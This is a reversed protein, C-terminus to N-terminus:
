SHSTNRWNTYIAKPYSILLEERAIEGTFPFHKKLKEFKKALKAVTELDGTFLYHYTIEIRLTTFSHQTMKLYRDLERRLTEIVYPRHEGVMELYLLESLIASLHFEMLNDGHNALDLLIEKAQDLRALDTERDAKMARIAVSLPENANETPCLFWEEPMEHLRKGNTMAAMIRLQNYALKRENPDKGSSKANYGDNALIGNKQPIGNTLALLVGWFIMGISLLRLSLIPYALILVLTFLVATVSNVIVGGLHLARDPTDDSAPYMLCQGLTGAVRYRGFRLKGDKKYIALSFVRFSVFRFGSSLGFILHGLEHLILQLPLTILLAFILLLTFGDKGSYFFDEAFAILLGIVVGIPIAILNIRKQRKKQNERAKQLNSLAQQLDM